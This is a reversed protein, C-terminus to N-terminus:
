TEHSEKVLQNMSGMKYGELDLAVFTYGLSRFWELIQERQAILTDFDQPPIEIRAVEGHHRVRAQRIGLRHLLMEAREVQSLVQITVPIGYPIRSSLCAAAPKDWNPLGIDRSLDRIDQKSFQAEIFPSRVGYESAAKRGPRYDGTDDLNAGDVVGAFGHAQAYRTLRGYVENRCWYCRLATNAQYNADEVEHTEILAHAFNFQRAIRQAEELDARPLSPSVATLALTGAGLEENAICALLTSDVGGSYAVVVRQMNRLICRLNTVKMDNVM